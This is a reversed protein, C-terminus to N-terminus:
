ENTNNGGTINEQEEVYKEDIEARYGISPCDVDKLWYGHEQIFVIKERSRWMMTGLVTEPQKGYIHIEREALADFLDRRSAPKNRIRLIESVAKEVASRSPNKSRALKRSSSTVVTDVKKTNHHTTEMLDSRDMVKRWMELLSILQSRKGNASELKQALEAIEAECAALRTQIQNVAENDAM